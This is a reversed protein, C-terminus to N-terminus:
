PRANQGSRAPVEFPLSWPRSTLGTEAATVRSEGVLKPRSRPCRSRSRRYVRPAARSRARGRRRDRRRGPHPLAPGNGDRHTEDFDKVHVHAVRSWLRRRRVGGRGRKSASTARCRSGHERARCVNTLPSGVGARITEVTLTVGCAEALDLCEPLLTLNEEFRPRRDSTEPSPARSPNRRPEGRSPLPELTALAARPEDLPGRRGAQGCVCRRVEAGAPRSRAPHSRSGVHTQDLARLRRRRTVRAM